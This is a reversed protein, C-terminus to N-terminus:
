DIDRTETPTLAPDGTAAIEVRPHRLRWLRRVALAGTGLAVLAAIGNAIGVLAWIRPWGLLAGFFLLPLTLLLAYLSAVIARRERHEPNWPPDLFGLGKALRHIGFTIPVALVVGIAFLWVPRTM